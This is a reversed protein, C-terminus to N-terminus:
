ISFKVGTLNTQELDSLEIEFSSNGNPYIEWSADNELVTIENSKPQIVWNNSPKVLVIKSEARNAHFQTSKVTFTCNPKLQCEVSKSEDFTVTRWIFMGILLTLMIIIQVFRGRTLKEAAM